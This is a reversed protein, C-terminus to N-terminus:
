YTCDTNLISFLYNRQTSADQWSDTTSILDLCGLNDANIPLGKYLSDTSNFGQDPRNPLISNPLSEFNGVGDNIAVHAGHFNSQFDRTSHVIDLAGDLNMDRVYINGEGHHNTARDQNVFRASTEDVLEGSGDNM